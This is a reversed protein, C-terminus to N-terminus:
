QASAGHSTLDPRHELLEDDLAIRVDDLRDVQELGAKRRPEPVTGEPLLLEGELLRQHRATV